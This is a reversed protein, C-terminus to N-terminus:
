HFDPVAAEPKMESLYSNPYCLPNLTASEIVEKLCNSPSVSRLTLRPGTLPTCSFVSLCVTIIIVIYYTIYHLPTTMFYRTHTSFSLIFQMTCVLVSILWVEPFIDRSYLLLSFRCFVKWPNAFLQCGTTWPYCKEGWAVGYSCVQVGYFM